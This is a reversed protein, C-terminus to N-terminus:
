GASGLAARHLNASGKLAEKLNKIEQELMYIQMEKRGIQIRLEANESLLLNKEKLLEIIEQQLKPIDSMDSAKKEVLSTNEPHQTEANDSFHGVHRVNKLYREEQYMSGEGTVLWQESINFQECIAELIKKKPTRGHVEYNVVARQTIGLLLAFEKQTLKGRVERIRNGIGLM